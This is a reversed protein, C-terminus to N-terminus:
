IVEFHRHKIKSKAILEGRRASLYVNKSDSRIYVHDEKSVLKVIKESEIDIDGSNRLEIKAKPNKGSEDISKKVEDPQVQHYYMYLALSNAFISWATAATHSFGSCHAQVIDAGQDKWDKSYKAATYNAVAVTADYAHLVGAGVVAALMAAENAERSTTARDKGNGISLRLTNKSMEVISQRSDGATLLLKSEDPVKQKKDFGLFTKEGTKALKWKRRDESEIIVDGEAVYLLDRETQHIKNAYSIEYDPGRRIKVNSSLAAEIGASIKYSADFGLLMETKLGLVTESKIGGFVATKMGAAIEGCDSTSEVFCSRGLQIGSRHHPSYLSIHEDGPTSDFILENGYSDRIISKTQNENTVPSVTEPNPISNSIIPRDPDGDIFTVLVEAGKHLPFHMGSSEKPGDTATFGSYPQAMRVYRSAKGGSRGSLDLPLIVKYRGQEDIEAYKGDGAADVVANMTGAIRPRPSTRAPRFQVDSPICTFRNSYGPEKEGEIQEEELGALQLGTQTGRHEVDTVLYRQNYRNRFHEALEFLFGPALTPTTGEGHFMTERCLLEEARIKALDQGEGPDKFHEGYIYTEGRGKPDVEAEVRLDLSPKRYNYDKLLVKKPLVRQRCIFTKVVEEEAPILGSPPSYFLTKEGKIVKHAALSDTIVLKECKDTQEFFYYIGEREMWRSIFNLNTEQYQCIYERSPYSRTLKFEYDQSRLGAHKLIEEVVEPVTKDLFLQNERYLGAQWLRPVLIARYFVRHKVEHLQEFQSPVGHIHFEEDGRLITLTAPNRLFDKLDIDPDESALTIDFEYPRSIAETGSFRVVAFTDEPLGQSAFTFQKREQYIM